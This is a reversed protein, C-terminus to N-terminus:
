NKPFFITGGCLPKNVGTTKPFTIPLNNISRAALYAILESEVFDSSINCDSSNILKINIRKRLTNILHSNLVGGGTVLISKPKQPLQLIGHKISQVTCELLTAMFDHDTLNKKKLDNLKNTFYERDLSKPYKMLFFNDSLFNEKVYKMDPSGLSSFNGNDDFNKNFKNQFFKDMLINGPGTDFGILEKKNWFTLNSIGGINLVCSPLQAGIEHLLFQHYIPALPAGQGGNNIDNNRFEFVVKQGTLNALMQPDGIQVSINESPNHYITQGHFGILDIKNQILINKIAKFNEKTVFTNLESLLKNNKLVPYPDTCILSLKRKYNKKFKYYYNLNERKFDIGNSSAISIDIGDLSTGSM